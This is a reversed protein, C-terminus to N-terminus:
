SAGGSHQAQQPAGLIDRHYSSIADPHVPIGNAMAHAIHMLHNRVVPNRPLRSFVSRTEPGFNNRIYDHAVMARDAGLNHTDPDHVASFEQLSMEHPQKPNSRTLPQTTAMRPDNGVAANAWAPQPSAFTSGIPRLVGGSLSAREFGQAYRDYRKNTDFLKPTKLDKQYAQFNRWARIAQSKVDQHPLTYDKADGLWKKWEDAKLTVGEHFVDRGADLHAIAEQESTGRNRQLTANRIVNNSYRSVQDCAPSRLDGNKLWEKFQNITMATVKGVKCGKDYSSKFAELAKRNNTYGLMVKHEDFSGDKCCHDIVYVMESQRHPGVFVDVGEGDAGNTRKIYGYDAPMEPWDPRRRQGKPTEICIALGHLKIHNSTQAM